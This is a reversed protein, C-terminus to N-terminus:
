KAVFFFVVSDYENGLVAPGRLLDPTSFATDSAVPM